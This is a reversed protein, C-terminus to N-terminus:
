PTHTRPTNRPMVAKRDSKATLSLIQRRDRAPLTLKRVSADDTPSPGLLPRRALALWATTADM